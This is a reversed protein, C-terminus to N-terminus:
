QKRRKKRKGGSVKEREMRMEKKAFSEGRVDLSIGPSKQVAIMETFEEQSLKLHENGPQKKGCEHRWCLQNMEVESATWNNASPLLRQRSEFTGECYRKGCWQCKPRDPTAPSEKEPTRLLYNNSIDRAKKGLKPHMAKLAKKEM